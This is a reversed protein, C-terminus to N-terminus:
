LPNCLTYESFMYYVNMCIICTYESLCYIRVWRVDYICVYESFTCDIYVFRELTYINLVNRAHVYVYHICSIYMHVLMFNTYTVYLYVHM